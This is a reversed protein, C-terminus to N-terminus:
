QLGYYNILLKALVQVGVQSGIQWSGRGAKEAMKGLWDRVRPGFTGGNSKGVNSEAALARQLERQDEDAIGLRRLEALLATLDGPAIAGIAQTGDRGATSVINNSGHIVTQQFVHQLGEASVPQEGPLAEGARPDIKEIEISYQLVKDRIAKLIGRFAHRPVVAWLEVCQANQYLKVYQSLEPPVILRVAEDPANAFEEISSVPFRVEFDLPLDDLGKPFASLPVAVNSVKYGANIFTGFLAKRFGTRYEPLEVAEPYGNLENNIWQEFQKHGLRAALIRARM